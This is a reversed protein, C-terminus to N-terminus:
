ARATRPAGRPARAPAPRRALRRDVDRRDRAVRRDRLLPELVELAGPQVAHDGLPGVEGVLGVLAHHRLDLVDAGGVAHEGAVADVLGIALRDARQQEAEVEVVGRRARLPAVVRGPERGTPTMPANGICRRRSSNASSCGSTTSMSSWGHLQAASCEPPGPPRCGSSGPCPGRTRAAAARAPSRPGSRSGRPRGSGAGAATRGSAGRGRGPIRRSRAARGAPATRGRRRARPGDGRSGNGRRPRRTLTQRHDGRLLDRLDREEGPEVGVLALLERAQRRVDAEGRALVGRRLAALGRQEGHEVPPDLRHLQGLADLAHDAARSGPSIKPSTGIVSPM